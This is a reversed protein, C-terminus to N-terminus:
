RGPPALGAAAAAAAQQRATHRALMKAARLKIWERELVGDPGAPGGPPPADPESGSDSEANADAPPQYGLISHPQPLPPLRPDTLGLATQATPHACCLGRSTRGVVGWGSGVGGVGGVCRTHDPLGAGRKTGKKRKISPVLNMDLPNASVADLWPAGTWTRRRPPPLLHAVVPPRRSARQLSSCAVAFDAAQAGGQGRPGWRELGKMLAKESEPVAAKPAPSAAGQQQAAAAAAAQGLQLAPVEVPGPAAAAAANGAADKDAAEAKSAAASGEAGLAAEPEANGQPVAAAAAAAVGEAAAPVGEGEAASAAGASDEKSVRASAQKSGEAAGVPPAGEEGAAPQPAAAAGDAAAAAAETRPTPDMSPLASAGSGGSLSSAATALATAAAM